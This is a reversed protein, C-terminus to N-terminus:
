YTFYVGVEIHRLSLKNFNVRKPLYEKLLSGNLIALAVSCKWFCIM